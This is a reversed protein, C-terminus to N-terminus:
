PWSCRERTWSPRSRGQRIRGPSSPSIARAKSGGPWNGAKRPSTSDLWATAVNNVDLTAVYGFLFLQMLPPVLIFFVRRKLRFTEIFEKIALYRIREFM